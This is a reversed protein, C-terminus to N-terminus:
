LSDASPTPQLAAASLHARAAPAEGGGPEVVRVAGDPFLIEQAACAARREAGCALLRSADPMCRGAHLGGASQPRKSRDGAGRKQPGPCAHASSSAAGTCPLCTSV